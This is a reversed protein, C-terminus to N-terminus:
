PARGALMARAGDTAVGVRAFGPFVVEELSALAVRRTEDVSPLGLASFGELPLAANEEILGTLSADIMGPLRLAIERKHDATVFRSALHAWGARAHEIEDTLIAKLGRSVVVSECAALAAGLRVSAITENLCSMATLHLTALLAGSAGEHAPVFLPEADPWAHEVGDHREALLLCIAVHELEDDVARAAIRLVAPEAGTELLERAIVAFAAGVHAEMGARMAWIAAVSARLEPALADIAPDSVAGVRAEEDPTTAWFPRDRRM